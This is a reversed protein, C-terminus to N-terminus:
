LLFKPDTPQREWWILYSGQGSTQILYHGILQHHGLGTPVGEQCQEDYTELLGMLSKYNRVSERFTNLEVISPPFIYGNKSVHEVVKEWDVRVVDEDDLKGLHELMRGRKVKDKRRADVLADLTGEGHVVFDAYESETLGLYTHLPGLDDPSSHWIEIYDNVDKTFANGIVCEEMFSRKKPPGCERRIIVSKIIGTGDIQESFKLYEDVTLGLFEHISKDYSGTKWENIYEYVQEANAKGSLCDDIFTTGPVVELAILRTSLEEIEERLAANHDAENVPILTLERSKRAHDVAEAKTFIGAKTRFDTYGSAGPRYYPGKRIYFYRANSAEMYEIENDTM